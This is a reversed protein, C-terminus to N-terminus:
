GYGMRRHFGQEPVAGGDLWLLHLETRDVARPVAPFQDRWGLLWVPRGSAPKFGSPMYGSMIATNYTTNSAVRNNIDLSANADSWNNSLLMVADAIVAAPKETYGPAVSADTNNPNGTANAPVVNPSSTTGTNYDGQIYVPNQSVVTLGGDPLVGGDQLRVTKPKPDVQGSTIHEIYLVGNFNKVGSKNLAATVKSMDLNTVTVNKGERQDWMTTKGTIAAQLDKLRGRNLTTGNATNVNVESGVIDIIIGAKNYLRRQAIEPPDIYGAVPPEILERYSDNNPNGDSDVPAIPRGRGDFQPAPNLM